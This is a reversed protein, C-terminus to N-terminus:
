AQSPGGRRRFEADMAKGEGCCMGSLGLKLDLVKAKDGKVSSKCARLLQM